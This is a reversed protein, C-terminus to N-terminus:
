NITQGLKQVVSTVSIISLPKGNVDKAKLLPHVGHFILGEGDGRNRPSRPPEFFLCFRMCEVGFGIRSAGGLDGKGGQEFFLCCRMCEVGFGGRLAGMRRGTEVFGM